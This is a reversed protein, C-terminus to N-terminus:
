EMQGMEVEAPAIVTHEQGKPQDPLNMRTVKWGSHQLIGEFPPQGTIYGTLRIESPDFRESVTVPEGEKESMVPALTFYERMANRCDQHIQRVAAGIQADPYGTIDEQFFDILRAKNQLISLIQCAGVDILNRDLTKAPKEQKASIEVETRKPREEPIVAGENVLMRLLVSLVLIVALGSLFLVAPVYLSAMDHLRQLEILHPMLEKQAEPQIAAVAMNLGKLTPDVYSKAALYAGAALVSVTLMVVLFTTGVMKKM